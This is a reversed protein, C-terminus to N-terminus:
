NPNRIPVLYECSIFSPLEKTNRSQDTSYREIDYGKRKILGLSPLHTHYITLIFRQFESSPGNYNFKVYHGREIKIKDLNTTGNFSDNEIAGIAYFLEQEDFANEGPIAIHLGYLKGPLHPRKEIIEKWLSERIITRSENFSDLTSKYKGSFAYISIDDIISFSFQLPFQKSLTIPPHIGKADWDESKRYRSPTERFQKKFARTFSQQSEFQYVASIDLISRSTLRLAIASRSLRRGRVYTGVSQGTIEKFMRQLHWKSYGSKYAIHDISLPTTLNNEIWVLLSHMFSHYEM